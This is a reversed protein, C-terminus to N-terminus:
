SFTFGDVMNGRSQSTSVSPVRVHSARKSLFIVGASGFRQSLRFILGSSFFVVALAEYCVYMGNSSTYVAARSPARARVMDRSILVSRRARCVDIWLRRVSENPGQRALAIEDLSLLMMGSRSGLRERAVSNEQVEREWFRESICRLEITFPQESGASRQEGDRNAM